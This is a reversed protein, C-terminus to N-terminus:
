RLNLVKILLDHNRDKIARFQSLIKETACPDSAISKERGKIEPSTAKNICNLSEEQLHRLIILLNQMEPQCQLQNIGDICQCFRNLSFQTLPDNQQQPPPNTPQAQFNLM